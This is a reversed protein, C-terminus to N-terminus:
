FDARVSTRFVQELLRISCRNSLRVRECLCVGAWICARAREFIFVARCPLLAVRRYQAVGFRVSFRCAWLM